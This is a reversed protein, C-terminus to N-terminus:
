IEDIKRPSWAASFKKRERFYIKGQDLHPFTERLLWLSLSLSLSLSSSSSFLALAFTITIIRM